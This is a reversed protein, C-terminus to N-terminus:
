VRVKKYGGIEFSQNFHKWCVQIEKGSINESVVAIPRDECHYCKNEVSFDIDKKSILKELRDIVDQKSVGGRQHLPITVSLSVNVKFTKHFEPHNSHWATNGM